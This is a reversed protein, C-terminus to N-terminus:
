TSFLITVDLFLKNVAKDFGTTNWTTVISGGAAENLACHKQSSFHVIKLPAFLACNQAPRFNPCNKLAIPSSRCFKVESEQHVQEGNEQRMQFKSLCVKELDPLGSSEKDGVICIWCQALILNHVCDSGGDVVTM